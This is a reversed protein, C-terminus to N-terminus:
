SEAKFEERLGSALAGPDNAAEQQNDPLAPLGFLKREYPKIVYDNLLGNLIRAFSSNPNEKAHHLALAGAIIKRRTEERRNQERERAEIIKIKADIQAKKERLKEIKSQTM